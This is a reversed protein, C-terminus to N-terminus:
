DLREDLMAMDGAFLVNSIEGKAALSDEGVAPGQGLSNTKAFRTEKSDEQPQLLSAAASFIVVAILRLVDLSERSTCRNVPGSSVTGNLDCL